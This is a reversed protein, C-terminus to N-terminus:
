VDESSLSKQSSEEKPDNQRLLSFRPCDSHIMTTMREKVEPPTTKYCGKELRVFVTEFLNEVIVDMEEKTMYPTTEPDEGQHEQDEPFENTKSLPTTPMNATKDDDGDDVYKDDEEADDDKKEEDKEDDDCEGGEDELDEEDDDEDDGEGGEKEVKKEEGVEEKRSQEEIFTVLREHKTQLETIEEHLEERQM